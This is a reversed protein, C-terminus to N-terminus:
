RVQIWFYHQRLNLLLKRNCFWPRRRRSPAHGRSGRTAARGRSVPGRVGEGGAEQKIIVGVVWVVPCLDSSAESGLFMSKQSCSAVHSRFRLDHGYCIISLSRPLRKQCTLDPSLGCPAEPPGCVPRPQPLPVLLYAGCCGHSVVRMQNQLFPFPSSSVALCSVWPSYSFTILLRPGFQTCPWAWGRCVGLGRLGKQLLGAGHGPESRLTERM